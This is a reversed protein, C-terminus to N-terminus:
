GEKAIVNSRSLGICGLQMAYSFRKQLILYLDPPLFRKVLRHGKTATVDGYGFTKVVTMGADTFLKKIENISYIREDTIAAAYRTFGSPVVLVVYKASSAQEQLLRITEGREFHELVGISYSLDYGSYRTLDAADGLEVQVDLGFQDVTRKAIEVVKPDQDIATVSYGWAALYIASFGPGCGVDLLRAPPPLIARIRQYLPMNFHWHESAYAVITPYRDMYKTFFEVWRSNM